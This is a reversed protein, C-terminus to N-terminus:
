SIKFWDIGPRMQLLTFQNILKTELSKDNEDVLVVTRRNSHLGEFFEEASIVPAPQDHLAKLAHHVDVYAAPKCGLQVLQEGIQRAAVGIGWLIVEDCAFIPGHVLYYAKLRLDSNKSYRGDTHTLRRPHDRWELLVEPHKSFKAGALYLRLWLDYDEAWGHDQYGGVRDIWERRFAVSPHALPSQVFMERTIDEHTLLTNLWEIYARFESQLAGDPFGRVKSSIVAVDPNETLVRVQQSLRNPTSRDDADMRALLASKCAHIGANLAPIIGQHSIPLVRIRQDRAAWKQLITLTGDTSGDDVAVVEFDPLSQEALSSIAEDITNEVNYCPMLVSIVSMSFPNYCAAIIPL